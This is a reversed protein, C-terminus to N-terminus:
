GVIVDERLQDHDWIVIKESDEPGERKFTALGVEYEPSLQARVAEWLRLGEQRQDDASLVYEGRPSWATLAQKTEADLDLGDLRVMGHEPEDTWLSSSFHDTMLYIRKAVPCM